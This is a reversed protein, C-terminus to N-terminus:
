LRPLILKFMMFDRLSDRASIIKETNGEEIAETLEREITGLERIIDDIKM